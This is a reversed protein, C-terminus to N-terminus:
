LLRPLDNLLLSTTAADAVATGTMSIGATDTMTISATDTVTSISAMATIINEMSIDMM